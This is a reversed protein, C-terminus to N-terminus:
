RFYEIRKALKPSILRILRLPLLQAIKSKLAAKKHQNQISQIQKHVTHEYKKNSYSNFAQYMEIISEVFAVRKKYDMNRSWSNQAMLRYTCTTDPLYFLPGKEALLLTLPLDGVPADLVWKPIQQVYEAKFFLSATPIFDGTKEVIEALSYTKQSSENNPFYVHDKSPDLEYKYFASTFCASLDSQSEMADFQKQLKHPDTWFDDGECVAIYKGKAKKYLLPFIHIGQSKLNVKRLILNFRHDASVKEKILQQTSDTSADDHVIIEYDFNTQQMM